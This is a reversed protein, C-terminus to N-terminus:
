SELWGGGFGARRLGRVIHPSRRMVKWIADSRYNALMTLITGQDIGLWDGAVWGSAPDVTGTDIQLSPDRFSPNFADLFGYRGYIRSGHRQKMAMGAAIAPGPLFPMAGIAAFPALTGDDFGDPENAPGRASYGRIEVERGDRMVRHSGPGDCAGLGWMDSAYGDWGMPNAICWRHNALAERRGNEFYDIGAERMPEDQIGRFDIWIESYQGPWLPAFALWRNAGEGRWFKAYPATWAQWSDDRAPHGGSGLALIYVLKGENYGDWNRDIFGTEPHWGMPIAPGNQQFWDWQAMDVLETAIRRLESESPDDRDFWAAAHLAGMHLLATDVTSLEVRGHRLGSEMDLFHYFFGRHGAFGEAGEGQPLAHLFRLTLLTRDRAKARSIWGREAAIVYASLGFGIAAISCFSPTPWRDPILGNAPNAREWFFRFTRGELDAFFSPLSREPASGAAPRMAGPMAALSLGAGATCLLTRRDVPAQMM